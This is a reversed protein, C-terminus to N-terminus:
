TLALLALLTLLCNYRTTDIGFSNVYFYQILSYTFAFRLCLFCNLDISDESPGRWYIQFIQWVGPSYHLFNIELCLLSLKKYLAIKKFVITNRCALHVNNCCINQQVLNWHDLNVMSLWETWKMYVFIEAAPCIKWHVVNSDYLFCIMVAAM